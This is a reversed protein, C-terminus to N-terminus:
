RQAPATPITGPAYKNAVATLENGAAELSASLGPRKADLAAKVQAATLGSPDHNVLNNLQIVQNKLSLQLQVLANNIRKVADDQRSELTPATPPAILPVVPTDAKVFTAAFLSISVLLAIAKM